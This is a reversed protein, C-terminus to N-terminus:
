KFWRYWKGDEYFVAKKRTKLIRWADSYLDGFKEKIQNNTVGNDYNEKIGMWIIIEGIQSEINEM